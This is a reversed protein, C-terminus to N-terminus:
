FTIMLMLTFVLLMAASGAYAIMNQQQKRKADAGMPIFVGKVIVRDDPHERAENFCMGTDTRHIGQNPTGAWYM